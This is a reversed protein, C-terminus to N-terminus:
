DLDSHGNHVLSAVLRRSSRRTGGGVEEKTPSGDMEFKVSSLMKPGEMEGSELDIVEYPEDKIESKAAEITAELRAQTKTSIIDDDMRM